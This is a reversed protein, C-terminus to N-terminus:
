LKPSSAALRAIEAEKAAILPLWKEMEAPFWRISPDRHDRSSAQETRDGALFAWNQPRWYHFWLRNKEVVLPRIKKGLTSDAVQNLGLERAFTAAVISESRADFECHIGDRTPIGENLSPSFADVFPLGRRNALAREAAVYTDLDHNRSSLDPAHDGIAPGGQARPPKGFPTPSLLLIRRGRATFRDLLNEYAAVFDDLADIGRLSEMKGFQAIVVTAGVKKMQDEWSPFNLQRFQEFVTDGECALNRVKMGELGPQQLLILEIMPREAMAVMDEGGVLAV